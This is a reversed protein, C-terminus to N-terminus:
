MFYNWVCVDGDSGVSVVQKGDTTWVAKVCSNSHCSAQTLPAAEPKTPHMTYVVITGDQQATVFASAATSVSISNSQVRTTDNIRFVPQQYDIDYFQISGDVTAIILEHEGTTRQGMSAFGSCEPDTKYTLRKPTKMNGDQRANQALDFAMATKDLSCTHIITECTNDGLVCTVPKNHNQLMAICERQATSWVRAVGDEGSSLHFMRSSYLSTVAGRHATPVVWLETKREVDFCRMSGDNWGVVLQNPVVAYTLATPCVRNVTTKFVITYESLNWVRVSGDKSATAFQDSRDPPVAVDTVGETHSAMYLTTTLDSSVLRYLCGANTAALIECGDGSTSLSTVGGSLQVVNLTRWDRESGTIKAVTGDGCGVVVTGDNAVYTLSLIGAGGITFNTKYLMSATNFVVVDNSMTGCLLNEGLLAASAYTRVFGGLKGGSGPVQFLASSLQYQMSKIEFGWKCARVGTNYTVYFDYAQRRTGAEHIAGWQLGLAKENDIVDKISGSREGSQMDWIYTRGDVGVSALWREDPSFKLSYVGKLHGELRHRAVRTHYDWIIIFGNGEKSRSSATQGSAVMSGTPSVDVASISADHGRLIHQDHPDECNSTVLLKGVSFIAVLPISTPHLVATNPSEGSFGIVHELELPSNEIESGSQPTAAMPTRGSGTLIQQM